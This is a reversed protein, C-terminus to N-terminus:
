QMTERIIEEVTTIGDFVALLGSQRLTRMGEEIAAEGLVGTSVQDMILDCLRDSLLMFEFIAQRQRHGTKNCRDCGKGYAFKKGEVEAPNLGLEMVEEISPEYWTKCHICIKRVLRQAIIAKLTAVIKFPDVGLDTLRAIVSPADNTHLTSFVVHGTLSAEIAIDATDLDRIEGVLITDPDQRLIARLASAFTLGIDDKIEIQLLGDIAYEVPDETTIIKTDITNAENLAAYLTTTKGSGTPGTVLVIGNPMGIFNRVLELEVDRLGINNLDLAVVSRDLIRLVASEGFMTPLTSVRLDVPRGGINLEIRGDQPVRNEAIDLNSMVKIRSVLALALHKPPSQMEYLVGDIRQRIRFENEFPEFHIDSAQEKIGTMLILNMLKVVPALEAQATIDSLDLKQEGEEIFTAMESEPVSDYLQNMDDEGVYFRELARQVAEPNSVAGQVDCNLMFRLDDFLSINLPDAMAVTLLNKDPDWNVPIIQYGRATQSPVQQLLEQPIDLNDLDVSEMGFQAGLAFMLDEESIFEQKVLIQGLPGGEDRQIALCEQLEGESILQMEKLIQGLPKHGVKVM